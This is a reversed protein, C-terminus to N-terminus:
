DRLFAAVAPRQREWDEPFHHSGPHVRSDFRWGAAECARRWVRVFPAHAEQSGHIFVCRAPRASRNIPPSALREALSGGPSLAVVGAYLDPNEATLLMAHLAGQSFGLLFVRDRNVVGDLLPSGVIAQLDRRTPELSDMSWMYRGEMAPVSGPVAVAVFGLDAWAQASDLYSLNTDGYGHLLLMLPWGGSPPDGAPPVAIPQGVRTAASAVYRDRIDLLTANFDLADRIRGLEYDMLATPFDDYGLAMALEFQPVAQAHRNWLEYNCALQYPPYSWTPDAQMALEYYSEAESFDEFAKLQDAIDVLNRAEQRAETEQPPGPWDEQWVLPKPDLRPISFAPDNRATEIPDTASRALMLISVVCCGVLLLGGGIGLGVLLAIL